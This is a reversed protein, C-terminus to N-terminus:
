GTFVEQMRDNLRKVFQEEPGIIAEDFLEARPIFGTATLLTAVPGLGVVAHLVTVIGRFKATERARFFRVDREAVILDTTERLIKRMASAADEGASFVGWYQSGDTAEFIPMFQRHNVRNTIGVFVLGYDASARMIQAIGEEIRDNLTVANKSYILKCSGDWTSNDYVFSVDPEDATKVSAGMSALISAMELEFVLDRENSQKSDQAAPVGADLALKPLLRCVDAFAVNHQADQLARSLYILGLPAALSRPDFEPPPVTILDPLKKALQIAQALESGVNFCIGNEALLAELWIADDRLRHFSIAPALAIPDYIM